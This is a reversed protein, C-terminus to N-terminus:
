KREPQNPFDAVDIKIGKKDEPLNLIKIKIPELVAMVRKANLNLEDRVFAELMSPDVASLTGSVGM